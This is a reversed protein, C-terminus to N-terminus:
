YPALNQGDNIILWKSYFENFAADQSFKKSNIFAWLKIQM